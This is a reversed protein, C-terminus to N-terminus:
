IKLEQILGTSPQFGSGFSTGQLITKINTSHSLVNLLYVETFKVKKILMNFSPFLLPCVHSACSPSLFPMLTKSFVQHFPLCWPLDYSINFYTTWSCPLLISQIWIASFLTKSFPQESCPLSDEPETFTLSHKIWSLWQWTSFFSETILLWPLGFQSKYCCWM